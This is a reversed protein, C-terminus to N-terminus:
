GEFLKRLTRPSKRHFSHNPPLVYSADVFLDSVNEPVESFKDRYEKRVYFANVGTHLNCCVLFYGRDEFLDCYTQLSCGFYDDGNWRHEPDYDICFRVPPPFLANYEVIFLDPTHDKLIEKVLFYDNGDLDLSIVKLGDNGAGNFSSMGDRIIAGINELTIWGQIYKLRRLDQFDFCLKNDGSWFGSFGLAGLILTNCESGDGVGFEAFLHRNPDLGLRKVIEITLGDEDAQSFFKRGYSNFPNKITQKKLLYGTSFGLEYLQGISHSIRQLNSHMQLSKKLDDVGSM